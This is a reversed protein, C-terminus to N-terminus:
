SLWQIEDYANPQLSISGKTPQWNLTPRWHWSKRLDHPYCGNQSTCLAWRIPIWYAVTQHELHNTKKYDFRKDQCRRSQHYKKLLEHSSKLQCRYTLEIKQISIGSQNLKEINAFLFFSVTIEASYSAGKYLACGRFKLFICSCDVFLTSRTKLACWFCTGDILSRVTVSLVSLLTVFIVFVCGYWLFSCCLM